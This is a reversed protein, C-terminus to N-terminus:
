FLVFVHSLFQCVFVTPIHNTYPIILLSSRWWEWVKSLQDFMGCHGIEKIIHLELFFFPLKILGRPSALLHIYRGHNGASLHGLPYQRMASSTRDFTLKYISCFKFSYLEAWNGTYKVVYVTYNCETYSSIACCLSQGPVPQEFPPYREGGPLDSDLLNRQKNQSCKEM